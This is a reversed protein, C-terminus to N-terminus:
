WSKVVYTREGTQEFSLDYSYCIIELAEETTASRDFLGTYYFTSDSELRIEIDYHREVDRFVKSLPTTNYIFKQSRWALVVDQRPNEVKVLDGQDDLRAMEEPSLVESKGKQDEALVKGTLCFVEFVATRALVNFTTGLVEVNGRDTKVRFSRGKEVEFFAEGELFVERKVWWWGPAYTLQSAANLHLISGDPLRHSLYEGEKATVNQTYLRALMGLGVALVLSAAVSVSKWNLSRVLTPHNTPRSTTKDEIKDWVEARSRSYPVELWSFLDKEKESSRNPDPKRSEM